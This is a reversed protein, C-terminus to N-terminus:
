FDRAAAVGVADTVKTVLPSNLTKILQAFVLYLVFYYVLKVKLAEQENPEQQGQPKLPILDLIEKGAKRVWSFHILVALPALVVTKYMAAKLADPGQVQRKGVNLMFAAPQASPAYTLKGAVDFHKIFLM